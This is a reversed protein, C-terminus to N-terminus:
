SADATGGEPPKEAPTFKWTAPQMVKPMGPVEAQPEEVVMRIVKPILNLSPASKLIGLRTLSNCVSIDAALVTACVGCLHKPEDGVGQFLTHTVKQPSEPHAVPYGACVLTSESM